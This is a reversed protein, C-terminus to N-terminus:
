EEKYEHYPLRLVAGSNDFSYKTNELPYRKNVLNIGIKFFAEAIAYPDQIVTGTMFGKKILERAAPIADIGVVAIQKSKDGKNYGYKQLAEIAGIAMADNNAVVAEIRGGYNLFLSEVANKALDQDWDCNVAAIQQTKIGAKNITSISYETRADAVPSDRKGRLLIYELINDGNKDLLEKQTNWKDVLIKGELVGSQNVESAVFIAQKPDNALKVINEDPENYLILPINKQKIKNVTNEMISKQSIVFNVIFLNFDNKLENDISENQITQNGKADFFTFKVKGENENEIKEMNQKVLSIYQDKFDYLFVAANIKVDDANNVSSYVNNKYINTLVIIAVVLILIKKLTKM